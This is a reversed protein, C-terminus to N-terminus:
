HDKVKVLNLLTGALALSTLFWKAIVANLDVQFKNVSLCVSVCLRVAIFIYDEVIEHLHLLAIANIM